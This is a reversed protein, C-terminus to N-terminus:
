QAMWLVSIPPRVSHGVERSRLIIGACEFTLILKQKCPLYEAREKRMVEGGGSFAGFYFGDARKRKWTVMPFFDECGRGFYKKSFIRLNGFFVDLVKV